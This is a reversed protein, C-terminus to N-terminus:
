VNLPRRSSGGEVGTYLKLPDEVGTYRPVGVLAVLVDAAEVGPPGNKLLGPGLPVGAACSVGASSMWAASSIGAASPLAGAAFPLAGAAFPVGGAASPEGDAASPEGDVLVTFVGAALFLFAGAGLVVSVAAAFVPLVDAM